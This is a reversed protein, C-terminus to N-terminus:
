RPPFVGDEEEAFLTNIHELLLPTRIYRTNIIGNEGRQLLLTLHHDWFIDHYFFRCVGPAENVHRGVHSPFRVAYCCDNPSYSPDYNNM